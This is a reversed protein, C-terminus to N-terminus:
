YDVPYKLRVRLRRLMDTNYEDAVIVARRVGGACQFRLVVILPSIFADAKLSARSANGDADTLWWDGTPTLLVERPLERSFRPSYRVLMYGAHVTVAVCCLLQLYWPMGTAFLLVLAGGHTAVIYFVTWPGDNVPLRIAQM